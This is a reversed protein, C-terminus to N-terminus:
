GGGPGPGVREVGQQGRGMVVGQKQFIIPHPHKVSMNWGAGEDRQVGMAPGGQGIYHAASIEDAAIVVVPDQEVSAVKGAGGFKGQGLPEIRERGMGDLVNAVGFDADEEYFDFGLSPGCLREVSWWFYSEM